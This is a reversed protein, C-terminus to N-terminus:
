QAQDLCDDIQQEAAEVNVYQANADREIIATAANYLYCRQDSEDWEDVGTEIRETDLVSLTAAALLKLRHQATQLADRPVYTKGNVVVSGVDTVRESM